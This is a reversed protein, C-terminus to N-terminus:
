TDIANAGCAIRASQGMASMRPKELRVIWEALIAGDFGTEGIM